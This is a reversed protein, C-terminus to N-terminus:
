FGGLNNSVHTLTPFHGARAKTCSYGIIVTMEGSLTHLSCHALCRAALPLDAAACIDDASIREAIWDDAADANASVVVLQVNLSGPGRIPRFSNSVVQVAVHLRCAVRYVEERVPCAEADVYIATMQVGV